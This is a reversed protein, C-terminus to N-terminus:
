AGEIQEKISPNIYVVNGGHKLYNDEIIAFSGKSKERYTVTTRDVFDIFIDVGIAEDFHVVLDLSKYLLERM